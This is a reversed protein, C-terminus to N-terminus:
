YILNNNLEDESYYEEDNNNNEMEELIKMDEEIMLELEEKYNIYPSRDGYLENISDRYNDWNNTMKNLGNIIKNKEKSIKNLEENKLENATKKRNLFIINNSSDKKIITYGLELLENKNTKKTDTNTNTNNTLVDKFNMIYLYNM